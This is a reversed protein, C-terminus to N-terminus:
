NACFNWNDDYIGPFSFIYHSYHFPLGLLSGSLAFIGILILLIGAIIKSDTNKM